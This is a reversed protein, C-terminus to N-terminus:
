PSTGRDNEIRMCASGRVTIDRPFVNEALPVVIPVRYAVSVKLWEGKRRPGSEIGVELRDRALGSAARVAVGRVQEESSTEVGRRAAERAAGTVVLQAHLVLVAQVFLLIVLLLVPLVLAFEVTAQAREDKM